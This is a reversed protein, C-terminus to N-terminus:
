GHRILHHSHAPVRNCCAHSAWEAVLQEPFGGSYRLTKVRTLGEIERGRKLDGKFNRLNRIKEAMKCEGDDWNEREGHPTQNEEKVIGGSLNPPPM